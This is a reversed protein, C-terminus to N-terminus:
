LRGLLLLLVVLLLLRSYLVRAMRAHVKELSRYLLHQCLQLAAAGAAAATAVTLNIDM